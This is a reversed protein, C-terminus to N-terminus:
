AKPVMVYGELFMTRAPSCDEIEFREAPNHSDSVRVNVSLVHGQFYLPSIKLTKGDRGACKFTESKM